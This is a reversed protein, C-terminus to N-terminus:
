IRNTKCLFLKVKGRLIYLMNALYKTSLRKCLLLQLTLLLCAVSIYFVPTNLGREHTTKVFITLNDLIAACRNSFDKQPLNYTICMDGGLLRLNTDTEM